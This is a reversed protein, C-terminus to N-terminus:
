QSNALLLRYAHNLARAQFELWTERTNPPLKGWKRRKLESPSCLREAIDSDYILAHGGYSYEYWDRAGNLCNERTVPLNDIALRNALENAYLEVGKEWASKKM